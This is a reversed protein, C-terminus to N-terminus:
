AEAILDGFESAVIEGDIAHMECWILADIPSMEEISDREGEWITFKAVFYNGKPTRYLAEYRGHNFPDSRNTTHATSAIEMATSTDFIKGGIVQKIPM